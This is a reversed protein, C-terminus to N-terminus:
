VRRGDVRYYVPEVWVRSSGYGARLSRPVNLRPDFRDWGTCHRRWFQRFEIARLEASAIGAIRVLKRRLPALYRKVGRRM